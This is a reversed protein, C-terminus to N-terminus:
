INDFFKQMILYILYKLVKISMNELIKASKKAKESGM